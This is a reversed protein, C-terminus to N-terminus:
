KQEGTLYAAGMCSLRSCISCCVFNWGAVFLFTMFGAKLAVFWCIIINVPHVSKPKVTCSLYFMHSLTTSASTMFGAGLTMFRFKPTFILAQCLEPSTFFTAKMLAAPMRRGYFRFRWPHANMWGTGNDSILGKRFSIGRGKDYKWVIYFPPYAVFLSVRGSQWTKSCGSPSVTVRVNMRPVSSCFIQLSM